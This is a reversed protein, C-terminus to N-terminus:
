ESLSAECMYSVKKMIRKVGPLDERKIKTKAHLLRSKECEQCVLTFGVTEATQASPSFPIGHAAKEVDELVSPLFKETPYAGESYHLVGNIENPVPDPFADITEQGRLPGHYVCAEDDCKRVQFYYTRSTVHKEYFVSFKPSQKAEKLTSKSQLDDDLKSLIDNHSNVDEDDAPPLIRFRQEKLTM